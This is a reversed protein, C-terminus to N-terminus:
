GHYNGWLAQTKMRTREALSPQRAPELKVNDPVLGVKGCLRLRWICLPGSPGPDPVAVTEFLAEHGPAIIAMPCLVDEAASRAYVRWAVPGEQRIYARLGTRTPLILSIAPGAGMSEFGKRLQRMTDREHQALTAMELGEHTFDRGRRRSKFPRALGTFGNEFGCGNCGPCTGFMDKGTGRCHKCDPMPDDTM